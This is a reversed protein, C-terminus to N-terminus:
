IPLVPLRNETKKAPLSVLLTLDKVGTVVVEVGDDIDGTTSRAKWLENGMQVYGRPCLPGVTQCRNGIFAETGTEPPRSTAKWGLRYAIYSWITWALALLVTLWIPVNTGILPFLWILVAVLIVLELITSVLSYVIFLKKNKRM